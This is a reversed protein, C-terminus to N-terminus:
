FEKGEDLYQGYHCAMIDVKSETRDTKEKVTCWVNQALLFTKCESRIGIESHVGSCILSLVQLRLINLCLQVYKNDMIATGTHHFMCGMLLVGYVM